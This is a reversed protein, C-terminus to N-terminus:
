KLYDVDQLDEPTHLRQIDIESSNRFQSKREPMRRLQPAVQDREWREIEERLGSAYKSSFHHHQDEHQREANPRETPALAAFHPPSLGPPSGM